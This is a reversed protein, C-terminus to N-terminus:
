CNRSSRESSSANKPRRWSGSGTSELSCPEDGVDPPVTKGHPALVMAISSFGEAASVAREGDADRDVCDRSGRDVRQDKMAMLALSGEQEVAYRSTQRDRRAFVPGRRLTSLTNRGPFAAALGRDCM